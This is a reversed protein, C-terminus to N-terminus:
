SDKIIELAYRLTANEDFDYAKLKKYTLPHQIELLEGKKPDDPFATFAKTSVRGKIKSNSLEFFRIDGCSNGAQGSPIGVIEGELQYLDAMLNYGSSLTSESSLIYIREPFYLAENQRFQFEKFFSPMKEIDTTISERMRVDLEEGSFDLDLSFDYDSKELPVRNNYSIKELDFGSSSTGELFESLKSVTGNERLLTLTREFGVLFYTFIQNMLSNGGQNNRLDVILHKTRAKKMETFLSLFVDTAAPIGEIIKDHTEPIEDGNFKRYVTQAFEEFKSMGTAQWYEFAERFTMMNAIRLYATTNEPDFFKYFFYNNKENSPLPLHSSNENKICEPHVNKAPSFIHEKVEGDPHQLTVAIKEPTRSNVWEPVLRQLTEEHLLVGSIDGFKGLLKYQNECGIFNELRKFIGEFSVGEVSILICGILPKHEEEIVSKVYLKEEIASFILPIGGPNQTDLVLNDEFLSTHSDKIKAILPMILFLFDIKSLGDEPIDRMLKQLRRHYAIRGGGKFYPEPHATEIIHTLDRIDQILKDRSIKTEM